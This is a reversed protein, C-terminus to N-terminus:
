FGFFFLWIVWLKLRTTQVTLLGAESSRLGRTPTYPILLECLYQPALNHLAKYTLM